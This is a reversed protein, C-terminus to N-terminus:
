ELSHETYFHSSTYELETPHFTRCINTIHMLDITSFGCTQQEKNIRHITSRDITSVPINFDGVTITNSDM